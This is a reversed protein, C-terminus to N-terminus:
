QQELQFKENEKKFYWAAFSSLIVSLIFFIVLMVIIWSLGGAKTIEKNKKESDEIIVDKDDLHTQLNFGKIGEFATPVIYNLSQVLFPKFENLDEITCADPLCLGISMPIPFVKPVSILIYSYDSINLCDEYRGFDNYDKGSNRYINELTDENELFYYTLNHLLKM